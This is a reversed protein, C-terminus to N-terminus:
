KRSGDDVNGNKFEKIMALYQDPCASHIDALLMLGINRQGENFFTASNGTFSSRYVGARDLVKWVFRRGRKSSMVWKLDDAEDKEKINAFARSEEQAKEQGKLDFPDMESRFLM